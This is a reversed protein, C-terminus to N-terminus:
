NDQLFMFKAIGDQFHHGNQLTRIHQYHVTIPNTPKLNIDCPGSFMKLVSIKNHGNEIKVATSPCNYEYKYKNKIWETFAFIM